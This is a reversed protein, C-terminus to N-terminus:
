CFHHYILRSFESVTSIYNNAFQFKEGGMMNAHLCNNRAYFFHSKQIVSKLFNFASYHYSM